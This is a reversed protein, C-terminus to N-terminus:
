QNSLQMMAPKVPGGSIEAALDLVDKLCFINAIFAVHRARSGEVAVIEWQQAAHDARVGYQTGGSVAARPYEIPSSPLTGDRVRFEQEGGLHECMQDGIM